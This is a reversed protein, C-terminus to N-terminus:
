WVGMVTVGGQGAGLSPVVRIATAPARAEARSALLWYALTGTAVVGAGIFAFKAGNTLSDYARRDADLSSCDKPHDLCANPKGSAKLAALTADADAGKGSAAVTLGLGAGIGGAVLAGGLLILAVSPERPAVPPVVAGSGSPPPMPPPPASGSASAVATPPPAPIPPPLELVLAVGETRGKEVQVRDKGGTYGALRAEVTHLVGPEVFLEQELPSRGVSTDDVFVEAHELNVKVKLAGVFARCEALRGQATKRLASTASMLPWVHLAFALHESADRYKGLQYEASGLNYAVDFTPNLSWAERFVAEAEAWKKDSYLRVGKKYLAAARKVVEASPAAASPASPPTAAVVHPTGATAALSFVFVAHRLNM